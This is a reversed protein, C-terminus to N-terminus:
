SFNESSGDRRKLCVLLTMGIMLMLVQAPEAVALLQFAHETGNPTWVVPFVFSEMGPRSGNPAASEWLFENPGGQDGLAGNHLQLWYHGPGLPVPFNLTLDNRFERLGLYSGLASRVGAEIGAALLDGPGEGNDRYFSWGIYGRYANDLELSWFRIGTVSAGAALTFDEAQFAIGMNNGTLHNPPSNDVVLVQAAAYPVAGFALCAACALLRRLQQKPNKM